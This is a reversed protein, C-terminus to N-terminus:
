HHSAFEPPAVITTLLIGSSLVAVAVVVLPSYDTVESWSFFRSKYLLFAALTGSAFLVIAAIAGRLFGHERLATAISLNIGM